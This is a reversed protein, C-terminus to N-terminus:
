VIARRPLRINGNDLKDQIWGTFQTGDINLIMSGGGSSGGGIPEVTVRESGGGEGVMIPTAQNAVFSGGTALNQVLGSAAYAGAAAATYGAAGAFNGLALQLGARVLAEQALGELVASMADKGAQKVVDWASVGEEGIQKFASAFASMSNETLNEWDISLDEIAKAERGIGIMAEAHRLAEVDSVVVIAEALEETVIIEDALLGNKEKLLEVLLTELGSWDEGMTKAESKLQVIRDIEDQLYLLRVEEKSMADKIIQAYQELAATNSDIVNTRREETDTAKTLFTDTMSLSENYAIVNRKANEYATNAAEDLGEYSAAIKGLKDRQSELILLMGEQSNIGGSDQINLADKLQNTHDIGDAVQKILDAMAANFPTLGKNVSVGLAEKLAKNAEGLRRTTNAASEATLAYNGIANKSQDTAIALTAHIKAEQESAYTLGEEAQRLMEAKVMAESVVIGYTKLAEREGTFASILAKSVDEPHANQLSGLDLALRNTTDSLALAADQTLNFGTLLDGTNGLLAEATSGALDFDDALSKAMSNAESSIDGFVIGFKSSIEEANSAAKAFEKGMKLAGLIVAGIIAPGAVKKLMAGMSKSSKTLKDTQGQTKKLGAIASNVKADVIIQLEDVVAM